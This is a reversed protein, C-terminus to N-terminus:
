RVSMACACSNSSAPASRSAGWNSSVSKKSRKAGAGTSRGRARAPRARHHGQGHRAGAVERHTRGLVAPQDRIEPGLFGDADDAALRLAALAKQGEVHEDGHGGADRTQAVKRRRPAAGHQEVGGFVGQMQDSRPELADTARRPDREGIERDVDDGGRAQAQIDGVIPLLEVRGDGRYAGEEEHEVGEDPEMADVFIRGGLDRRQERREALQLPAEGEGHDDDMMGAFPRVRDAGALGQAAAGVEMGPAVRIQVQTAGVVAQEEGDLVARGILDAKYDYVVVRVNRASPSIPITANYAIGDKRIKQFVDDPIKV